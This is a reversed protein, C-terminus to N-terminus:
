GSSREFQPRVDEFLRSRPQAPDDLLADEVVDAAHRPLHQRQDGGAESQAAVAPTLSPSWGV